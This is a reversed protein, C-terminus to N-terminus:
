ITPKIQTIKVDVSVSNGSVPVVGGSQEFNESGGTLNGSNASSYPIDFSLTFVTKDSDTAKYVVSGETGTATCAAGCAKFSVKTSKGIEATIETPPEDVWKGWDLHCSQLQLKAKGQPTVKSDIEYTFNYTINRNEAM